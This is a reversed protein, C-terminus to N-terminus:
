NIFEVLSDRPNTFCDLDVRRLLFIGDFQNIGWFHRITVNNTQNKTKETQQMIQAFIHADTLKPAHGDRVSIM